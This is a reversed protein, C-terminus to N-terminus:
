IACLPFGTPEWADKSCIASIRKFGNAPDAVMSSSDGAHLRLTGFDDLAEGRIESGASSIVVLNPGLNPEAPELLRHSPASVEYFLRLRWEVDCVDAQGFSYPGDFAGAAAKTNLCNYEDVMERCRAIWREPVWGFDDFYQSV